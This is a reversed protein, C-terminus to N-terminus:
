SRPRKSNPLFSLHGTRLDYVANWEGDIYGPENKHSAWGSAVYMWFILKRHQWDWHGFDANRVSNGFDPDHIHHRQAYARIAAEDLRLNNVRVLTMSSRSIRKYLYCTAVGHDCGRDVFLYNGDPSLYFEYAKETGGPPMEETDGLRVAEDAMRTWEQGHRYIVIDVRGKAKRKLYFLTGDATIEGAFDFEDQDSPNGVRWLRSNKTNEDKSVALKEKGITIKPLNSANGGIRSQRASASLVVCGSLLFAFLIRYASQVRM